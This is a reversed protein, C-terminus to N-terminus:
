NSPLHIKFETGQDVQSKISIKGGLTEVQTKVMYLGMGKGEASEPHFRKYLGFVQDGKKEIDIGMSNDKFVLEVSNDVKRSTIEIVPAIHQRRYKISNSILNYFISHLYSKLTSLEDIESFDSKIEVLEKDLYNRISLKIDNVVQSFSVREKHENMKYRVQLINNLDIIVGDLKRIATNLGEMFETEEEKNLTGTLITTSIDTINAVPARLNHTIIYAFQELDRNRDILEATVNKEKIELMKRETINTVALCVGIVNKENDRVPHYFASFWTDNENLDSFSIEYHKSIGEMASQIARMVGARADAPFFGAANAGETLVAHLHDHTFIAAPENFSVIDFQPNLLVYGTETNNFLTRLNAESQQLQQEAKLRETVDNVLILRANGKETIIDDACIEVKIKSGDKKMHTWVGFSSFGTAAKRELGRYRAKEEEPRIDLASKLLFEEKTYGYHRIAAENVDLFRLTNRDIVFLPIPNNEFINRYKKESEALQHEAERAATIDRIFGGVSLMKGGTDRAVAGEAQLYKVAGNKCRMRCEYRLIGNGGYAQEHIASVRDRDDPHVKSLFNEFCPTIERDDYELIRYFEDSWYTIQTTFDTKWSGFGALKEAEKMVQERAQLEDYYQRRDRELNYKDICNSVAGPLRQLRDKLIYDYAGNKMASVAFEESVSGTILIFPVPLKKKKTIEMAEIADFQPLSHDAIILDYTNHELAAIFAHRSDIVEMDFLMGSKELVKRILYADMSEDELLLLNLKKM